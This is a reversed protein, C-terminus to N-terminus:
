RVAGGALEAGANRDEELLSRLADASTVPLSCTFNKCLYAAPRGDVPSVDALVPISDRLSMRVEEMWLPLMTIRPLFEMGAVGWLEGAEGPGTIALFSPASRLLDWSGLMQPMGMPMSALVSAFSQVTREALALWDERGLLRGLRTLNEVAISSAAPEAGDHDEKMRAIVSADGASTQFFGGAPDTFRNVFIEHLSTARGLWESGGGAEWLDLYGRIVFAYDEAFAPIGVLATRLTRFLTGDEGRMQDWILTAARDAEKLYTWEDFARAARALASIMLGNWGAIVKEDRHPRPRTLRKAFLKASCESLLEAQRRPIGSGFSADLINRGRLEGHPDANEPVNGDPKVGFAECFVGGAEPGLEELIEERTWVYFAGEATKGHRSSVPSDADEAAFFGGEPAALDRLVYEATTKAIHRYFDNGTIQWAETYNAILQAQDYLMKEFHPVHWREDVSYRHFGGGLQDFMGGSAMRNLTGLFMERARKRNEPSADPDTSYRSLFNLIVPRPFKPAGGFGGFEEDYSQDLQEFLREWSPQLDFHSSPPRLRLAESRLSEAIEAAHEVIRSRDKAWIEAIRALIDPFGPRGYAGRPPFYTGGYFPHLDPTLWVSMPWGGSGTTAQVFAMYIRDVDPREERDVKINIFHENMLKAIDPNEFSEHAMVHCWHCTSYGVSLFIPKDAQRARAFAEEGWPFWEVPNEAHQRLYPSEELALGNM